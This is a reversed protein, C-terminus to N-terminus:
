ENEEPKKKFGFLYICLGGGLVVIVAVATIWAWTYDIKLDVVAFTSLSDVTVTLYGGERVTFLHEAKGSDRVHMVLVLEYKDFIDPIKITVRGDPQVELQSKMLSIDYAAIVKADIQKSIDKKELMTIVLRLDPDLGAEATLEIGYSNGSTQVETQLITYTGNIFKCDYNGSELVGTIEYRGPADGPQRSLTLYKEDQNVFGGEVVEYTLERNGDTASIDNIKATVPAKIVTLKGPVYTIDYNISSLGGPTITYNSGVNGYQQYSFTYTLTGSLVSSSEGSILGNYEVGNDAPKEGYTITHDKATIKLPVKAITFTVTPNSLYYNIDSFGEATATYVGANVKAGTVTINASGTYGSLTAKPQHTKGDYTFETDTWVVNVAKKAVTLTGPVFTIDYNDSSLGSPVIQYTGANSNKTYSCSLKLTGQLVTHNEGGVLGTYSVSYYAPVPDGYVISIDNARVTLPARVISWTLTQPMSTQDAWQYNAPNKITITLTYTGIEKAKNGTIDMLSANFDNLVPSQEAGKYTCPGSVTPKKLLAREIDWYITVNDTSGNIWEYQTKDKIAIVIPYDRGVNTQKNGSVVTMTSSDFGTITATQEYGTYYYTKNVLPTNLKTRGITLIKIDSEIGGVTVTFYYNGANTSSTASVTLTVKNDNVTGATITVGVPKYASGSASKSANNYWTITASLGNSMNTTTVTITLGSVSKRRELVGGTLEGVSVSQNCLRLIQNAGSGENKLGFSSNDSSFYGSLNANVPNIIDIPSGAGPAAETTIGIRANGSLGNTTDVTVVRGVPLYVNNPAGSKTNGFVYAGYSVRLTGSAYVGGGNSSASNGTVSGRLDVVGGSVIYIGGGDVATNGSITASQSLMIDVLGAYIGGGSSSVINNTINATNVTLGAFDNLFIGGGNAARNGTIVGGNLTLSGTNYVCIGGGNGTNYGGTIRGTTTATNDIILNGSVGIVYGSDTASTLGRSLTYGNLDLRVTKGAPIELAATTTINRQMLIYTTTGDAIDAVYAMAEAITGGGDSYSSTSGWIVDQLAIAVVQASGSGSNVIIYKRNDSEFYASYNANNVNTIVFATTATPATSASVGIKADGSLGSSAITISRNTIYINSKSGGSLVAGSITGGTVNDIIKPSGSVTLNTGFYVGGPASAATNEKIEGGKIVCAGDAYIGGGKSMSANLRVEGGEINVIGASTAYIGGGNSSSRNLLVSGGRLTFTGTVYVGGGYGSNYGGTIIGGGISSDVTLSGLVNFVNGNAVASTLGRDIKYGALDLVVAKGSNITTASTTNVDRLLKIYATGSTLGNAYSIAQALTGSGTSYETNPGWMAENGADAGAYVLAAGATATAFMLATVILALAKRTLLKKM